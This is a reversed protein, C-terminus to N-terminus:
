LKDPFESINHVIQLKQRSKALFPVEPEVLYKPFISWKLNPNEFYFYTKGVIHRAAREGAVRVSDPLTEGVQQVGQASEPRGVGQAISQQPLLVQDSAM